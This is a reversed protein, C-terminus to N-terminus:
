DSKPEPRLMYWEVFEACRGDADFRLVWLNDFVRDPYRTWGTVIARPGDLMLPEYAATWSGPEDRNERWNAIIADRGRVIEDEADYPHYAYSADASFLDGIATEDYSQWAALYRDLWGRVAARRDDTM